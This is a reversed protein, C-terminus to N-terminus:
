FQLLGEVESVSLNNAKVEEKERISITIKTSLFHSFKEAILTINKQTNIMKKAFDGKIELTLVNDEYAIATGYESLYLKVSKPLSACLTKWQSHVTPLMEEQEPADIPDIIKEPVIPQQKAGENTKAKQIKKRETASAKEINEQIKASINKKPKPIEKKEPTDEIEWPPLEEAVYEQTPEPISATTKPPFLDDSTDEVLHTKTVVTAPSINKNDTQTVSINKLQKTFEANLLITKAIAM